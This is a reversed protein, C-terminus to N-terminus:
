RPREASAVRYDALAGAALHDLKGFSADGEIQKDWAHGDFEVFWRRFEALESPPLSEVAYEISKVNEM